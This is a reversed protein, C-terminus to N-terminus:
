RGKKRSAKACTLLLVNGKWCYKLTVHSRKGGKAWAHRRGNSCSMLYCITWSLSEMDFCKCWWVRKFMSESLINSAWGAWIKNHKPGPASTQNVIQGIKGVKWNDERTKEVVSWVHSPNGWGEIASIRQHAHVCGMSGIPIWRKCQVWPLSCMPVWSTIQSVKAVMAYSALKWMPCSYNCTNREVVNLEEQQHISM